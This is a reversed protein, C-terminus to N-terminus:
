KLNKPYNKAIKYENHLKNLKKENISKKVEKDIGSSLNFNIRILGVKLKKLNIIDKYFIFPEGNFLFTKKFKITTFNTSYLLNYIHTSNISNKNTYIFSRFM